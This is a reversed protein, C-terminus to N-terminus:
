NPKVKLNTSIWEKTFPDIGYKTQYKQIQEKIKSQEMHPLLAPIKQPTEGKKINLGYLDNRIKPGILEFEINYRAGNLHFHKFKVGYENIVESTYNGVDFCIVEDFITKKSKGASFGSADNAIVENVM